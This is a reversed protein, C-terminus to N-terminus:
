CRSKPKLTSSCNLCGTKVGRQMVLVAKGPAAFFWATPILLTRTPCAKRLVPSSVGAKTAAEYYDKESLLFALLRGELPGSQVAM